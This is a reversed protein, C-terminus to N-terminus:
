CRGRTAYAIDVLEQRKEDAVTAKAKAILTKSCCMRISRGFNQAPLMPLILSPTIWCPQLRSNRFNSSPRLGPHYLSSTEITLREIEYNLKVCCLASRGAQRCHRSLFKVVSQARCTCWPDAAVGSCQLHTLAFSDNDM